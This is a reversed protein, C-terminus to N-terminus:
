PFCCVYLAISSKGSSVGSDEILAYLRKLAIREGALELSVNVEIKDGVQNLDAEM